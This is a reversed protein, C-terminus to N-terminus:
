QLGTLRKVIQFSINLLEQRHSKTLTDKMTEVANAANLRNKVDNALDANDQKLMAYLCHVGRFRLDEDEELCLNLLVRLSGERNLLNRVVAEYNLLIALAGGAASRTPKDESDSLALLVNLRDKAKPTDEYYPEAGDPTQVLNCVLETSARVVFKNSSLLQEEVKAWSQGAIMRNLNPDEMSALNTLAMLAEFTPLLDRVEAAPDPSLISVLPIVAAQVVTAQNGGFVLAPNTSILIRALAQAAMRRAADEKDPLSASATLLLRIAGQQSLQGRLSKDAALSHMISTILALSAPSDYKSHTVLVPTIGADFVAKTRKIVHDNDDLPSPGALKGAADAYAKLQSMKKQEETMAPLFRTLNCFISLVGYTIASRPKSDSLIAVLRKLLDKDKAISEKIPAQLSAYALGEISHQKSHAEDKMVMNTFLESLEEMTSM